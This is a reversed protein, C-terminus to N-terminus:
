EKLKGADEIPDTLNAAVECDCYGGHNRAWDTIINADLGQHRRWEITMRHTHDCSESALRADIAAILSSAQRLTMPMANLFTRREQNRARQKLARKREDDM